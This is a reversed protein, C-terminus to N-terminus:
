GGPGETVGASQLGSAPEVPKLLKTVYQSEVKFYFPSYFQFHVESHLGPTGGLVFRFLRGWTLRTKTLTRNRDGFFFINMCWNSNVAYKKSSKSKWLMMELVPLWWSASSEWPQAGPTRAPMQACNRPVCAHIGSARQANFPRWQTLVESVMQLWM